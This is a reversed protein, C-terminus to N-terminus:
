LFMRKLAALEVAAGRYCVESSLAIYFIYVGTVASSNPHDVLFLVFQAFLFAPPNTNREQISPTVLIFTCSIRKDMQAIIECVLFLVTNESISM